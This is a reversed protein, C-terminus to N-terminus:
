YYYLLLVFYHVLLRGVSTHNYHKVAQTRLEPKYGATQRVYLLIIGPIYSTCLVLQTHPAAPLTATGGHPRNRHQHWSDALVAPLSVTDRTQPDASTGRQNGVATGSENRCVELYRLSRVKRDGLISEGYM